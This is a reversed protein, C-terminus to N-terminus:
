SKRIGGAEPRAPDIVPYYHERSLWRAGTLIVVIGAAIAYIVVIIPSLDAGQPTGVLTNALDYGAHAVMVILLSGRTNNYLWAYMISLAALRVFTLGVGGPTQGAAGGPGILTWNHWCAWLVGVILAAILAGYQTQLRPQALGRWGVEEGFAGAFLSGILFAVAFGTPIALWQQPPAGGLVMHISDAGLVIIIPGIVALGYWGIGLRWRLVPRLLRRLGGAGPLLGAVLLAALTPAYATLEIAGLAAAANPSNSSLTHLNVRLLWLIAVGVGTLGILCGTWVLVIPDIGPPRHEFSATM